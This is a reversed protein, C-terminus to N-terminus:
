RRGGATPLTTGRRANVAVSVEDALAEWSEVPWAVVRVHQHRHFVNEPQGLLVIPMGRELAVGTEVHHGGTTRRHSEVPKILVLADAARVDDIDMQAEDHSENVLAQDIWRATSGVGYQALNIRCLKALIQDEGRAAIYVTITAPKPAAITPAVDAPTPFDM